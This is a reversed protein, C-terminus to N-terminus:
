GAKQFTSECERTLMSLNILGYVMARAGAHASIAKALQEATVIVGFFSREADQAGAHFRLHEMFIWADGSHKQECDRMKRFWRDKRVGEEIVFRVRELPLGFEELHLALHAEWLDEFRFSVRAGKGPSAVSPIGADRMVRLRARFAKRGTEPIRHLEAVIAEFEGYGITDPPSDMFAFQWLLFIIDIIANAYQGSPYIRVL